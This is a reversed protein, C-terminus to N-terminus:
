GIRTKKGKDQSVRSIGDQREEKRKQDNKTDIQPKSSHMCAQMNISSTKKKDRLSNQTCYNTYTIRAMDQMSVDLRQTISFTM